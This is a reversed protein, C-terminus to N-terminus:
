AGVVWVSGLKFGHLYAGYNVSVGVLALVLCVVFFLVLANVKLVQESTLVDADDLVRIQVGLLLLLRSGVDHLSQLLVGNRKPEM